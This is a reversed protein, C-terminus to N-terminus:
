FKSIVPEWMNRVFERRAERREKIRDKLSIREPQTEAETVTEETEEVYEYPRIFFHSPNKVGHKDRFDAVDRICVGTNSNLASINKGEGLYVAVHSGWVIIDGPLADEINDIVTGYNKAKEKTNYDATSNGAKIGFNGLVYYIFGSCDFKNPGKSAYQYGCGEFSSAFAAVESGKVPEAGLAAFAFSGLMIVAATIFAIIKQTKKM